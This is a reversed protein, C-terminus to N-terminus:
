PLTIVHKIDVSLIDLSHEVSLSQYEFQLSLKKMVLNCLSSNLSNAFRKVEDYTMGDTLNMLESDFKENIEDLSNSEALDNELEYKREIYANELQEKKNQLEWFGVPLSKSLPLIANETNIPICQLVSEKSTLNIDQENEIVWQYLHFHQYITSEFYLLKDFFTQNLNNGFQHIFEILHAEMRSFSCTISENPTYHYNSDIFIRLILELFLDRLEASLAYSDSFTIAHNLITKLTTNLRITHSTSTTEETATTNIM